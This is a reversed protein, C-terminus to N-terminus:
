RQIIAELGHYQKLLDELVLERGDLDVGWVRDGSIVLVGRASKAGFMVSGAKSNVRHATQEELPVLTIKDLSVPNGAIFRIM